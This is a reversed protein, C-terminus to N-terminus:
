RGDLAFRSGHCPCDFWRGSSNVTISCGLHPCNIAFAIVRGDVKVIHGGYALDGVANAGGGDAMVLAMDQPAEFKLVEGEAVEAVVKDLTVKVEVDRVGPPPPPWLYVLIPGILAAGTVAMLGGM